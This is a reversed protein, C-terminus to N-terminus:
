LSPSPSSGVASAAKGYGYKRRKAAGSLQPMGRDYARKEERHAERYAASEDRHALRYAAQYALYQARHAERYRMAAAHDYRVAMTTGTM